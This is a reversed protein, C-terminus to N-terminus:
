NKPSNQYAALRWGSDQKIRVWTVWIGKEEQAKCVAL